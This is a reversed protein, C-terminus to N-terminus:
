NSALRKLWADVWAQRSGSLSGPDPTGEISLRGVIAKLQKEFTRVVHMVFAGRAEVSEVDLEAIEDNRVLMRLTDGKREFVIPEGAMMAALVIQIEDEHLERLAQGKGRRVAALRAMGAELFTGGHEQLALRPPLAISRERGDRQAVQYGIRMSITFDGVLQIRHCLSGGGEVVLRGNDRDMTVKPKRGDIGRVTWDGLQADATWDYDIRVRGRPLLTVKGGLKPMRGPSLCFAREVVARAANQVLWGGDKDGVARPFAAVLTELIPKPDDAGELARRAVGLARVAVVLSAFPAAFDNTPDIGTRALLKRLASRQQAPLRDLELALMLSLADRRDADEALGLSRSSRVLLHPPVDWIALKRRLKGRVAVFEMTDDDWATVTYARNTTRRGRREPIFVSPRQAKTAAKAWDTVWADLARVCRFLRKGAVDTTGALRELASGIDFREFEVLARAVVVRSPVPPIPRTERPKTRATGGAARATTAGADKLVRGAVGVPDRVFQHFRDLLQVRTDAGFVSNFAAIGHQGRYGAQLLQSLQQRYHGRFALALFAVVGYCSDNWTEVQELRDARSGRLSRTAELYTRLNRFGVVAFPHHLWSLRKHEVFECHMAAAGALDRLRERDLTGFRPVEGRLALRLPMSALHEALGSALWGSPWTDGGPGFAHMVAPVAARLASRLSDRMAAPRHSAAVSLGREPLFSDLGLADPAVKRLDAADQLLWLPLLVARRKLGLPRAFRQEYAALVANLFRGHVAAVAAAVSRDAHEVFVVFPLSDFRKFSLARFTAATRFSAELAAASQPADSQPTPSQPAAPLGVVMAVGFTLDLCRM